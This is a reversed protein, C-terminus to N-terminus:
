LIETFQNRAPRRGPRRRPMTPRWRCGLVSSQVLCCCRFYPSPLVFAEADLKQSEVRRVAARQRVHTCSPAGKVGHIAQRPQRYSTSGGPAAWAGSVDDVGRSRRSKGRAFTLSSTSAVQIYSIVNGGLGARRRSLNRPTSPNRAPERLGPKVGALQVRWVPGPWRQVHRQFDQLLQADGPERRKAPRGNAFTTAQFLHSAARRSRSM